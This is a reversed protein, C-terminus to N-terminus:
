AAVHPGQVFSMTSGDGGMELEVVMPQEPGLLLKIRAQVVARLFDGLNEICYEQDFVTELEGPDNKEGAAAMGGETTSQHRVCVEGRAGAATMEVATGGGGRLYRLRVIDECEMDRCRKLDAKLTTVDYMWECEYSLTDLTVRYNDESLMPLKWRMTGANTVEDSATVAICDPAGARVGIRLTQTDHVGRLVQLLTRADVCFKVPGPADRECTVSATVICSKASSVAQTTLTGGAVEAFLVQSLNAIAQVASALAGAGTFVISWEYDDRRRKAM